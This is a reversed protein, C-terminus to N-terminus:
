DTKYTQGNSLKHEDKGLRTPSLGPGECIGTFNQVVTHNVASSQRMQLTFTSLKSQFEDYSFM